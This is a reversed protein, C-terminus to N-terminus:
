KRQGLPDTHNGLAIFTRDRASLYNEKRKFTYVTVEEYDHNNIDGGYITFISVNDVALDPNYGIRITVGAKQKKYGEVLRNQWPLEGAAPEVKVVTQPEKVVTQEVKVVPKHPILFGVLFGVAVCVVILVLRKM